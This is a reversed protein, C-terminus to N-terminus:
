HGSVTLTTGTLNLGTIRVDGIAAATGFTLDTIDVGVSSMGTGTLDIVLGANEVDVLLGTTVLGTINIATASIGANSSADNLSFGSINITNIDGTLEVFATEESGLQIALETGAPLSIAMSDLIVNSTGAVNFAGDTNSVYIDGTDITLGTTLDITVGLMANTGADGGADIRIEVDNGVLAMDQINIAGANDNVVNGFNATNPVGDDDEILIDQTLNLDLSLTIGDQGTYGSLLEDELYEASFAAAPVALAMALALKTMKM